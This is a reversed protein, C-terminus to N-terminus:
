FLRGQRVATEAKKECDKLIAVAQRAAKNFLASPVSTDGATQSQGGSSLIEVGGKTRVFTFEFAMIRMAVYPYNVKVPEYERGM